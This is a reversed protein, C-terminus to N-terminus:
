RGGRRTVVRRSAGGLGPLGACQLSLALRTGQQRHRRCTEGRLAGIGPGARPGRLLDVHLWHSTVRHREESTAASAKTTAAQPPFSAPCPPPLGPALWGPVTPPSVPAGPLGPALAAASTEPSSWTQAMPLSPSSRLVIASRNMSSFGFTVTSTVGIAQSWATVRRCVAIPPPWVGSTLWIPLSM